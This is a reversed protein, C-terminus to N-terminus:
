GVGAVTAALQRYAESQPLSAIEATLEALTRQHGSPVFLRDWGRNRGGAARDAIRGECVSHFLTTDADGPRRLAVCLVLRVPTERWNRCFRNENEPDLDLRLSKGDMTELDLAEAFVPHELEHFALVKDRARQEPDPASTAYGSPLGGVEFPMTPVIRRIEEARWTTGDVFLLSSM